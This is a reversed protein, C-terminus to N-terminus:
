VAICAILTIRVRPESEIDRSVQFSRTNSYYHKLQGELELEQMDSYEFGASIDEPGTGGPPNVQYTM